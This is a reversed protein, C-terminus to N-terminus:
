AKRTRISFVENPEIRGRFEPPLPENTADLERLYAALQNANFGESVLDELGAEKLAKIADGRDSYKGWILRQIYVTRGEVRMSDVGSEGMNELIMPELKAQKKRIKDLERNLKLRLEDLEAYAKIRDTNLSV